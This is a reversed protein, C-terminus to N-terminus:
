EVRARGLSESDVPSTLVLLNGDPGRVTATCGADGLTPERLWTVNPDRSLARYTDRVDNVEVEIDPYQLLLDTHLALRTGTTEFALEILPQRNVTIGRGLLQFGLAEYYRQAVELDPAYLMIRTIKRTM